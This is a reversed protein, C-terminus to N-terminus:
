SNGVIAEIKAEFSTEDESVLCRHLLEVFCDVFEGLDSQEINPFLLCIVARISCYEPGLYEITSSNDQLFQMCEFRAQDLKAPENSKGSWHIKAADIAKTAVKPLQFPITKLCNLLLLNLRHFDDGAVSLIQNSLKYIGDSM